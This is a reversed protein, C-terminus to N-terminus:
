ECPDENQLEGLFRDIADAWPPLPGHMADYRGTDLVSWTPRRAPTPYEASTCPTVLDIAGAAQFIHAAVDYWTATGTNAIHVVTATSDGAGHQALADPQLLQWTARALDVSYTPRGTQDAVVRTPEGRTARDWMSRPFSEGKIGFLWQTRIILHPAKGALLAREGALKSAGYVGLPNLHDDEKYARDSTGGFVYDTSYHVVLPAESGLEAAETALNAVARANVDFAVEPEREAGDVDTYAACNIVVQPQIDALSERVASEATVDLDSQPPAAVAAWDPAQRILDHALMGNSGLLLVKV